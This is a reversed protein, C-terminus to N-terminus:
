RRVMRAFTKDAGLFAELMYPVLDVVPEAVGYTREYLDAYEKLAQNLDASLTVTLKVPTRDPLRQLKIEAMTM